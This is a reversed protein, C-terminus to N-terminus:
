LNKDEEWLEIARELTTSDMAEAVKDVSSKHMRGNSLSGM